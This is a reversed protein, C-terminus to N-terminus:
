TEITKIKSQRIKKNGVIYEIVYAVANEENSRDLVKSAIQKLEQQANNVAIGVNVNKLLSIDNLNDGIGYSYLNKNDLYNILRNVGRGKSTGAPLIELYNSESFVTTYDYSNSLIEKEIELLNTDKGYISEKEVMLLIKSIPTDIFSDLSGLKCNIREKQEFKEIIANKNLTFPQNDKYIVLGYEHQADLIIKWTEPLVSMTDEYIVKKQVPCYLRAGNYSIIPLTINLQEIYQQTTEEMRGTAFTFLGGESIFKKIWRHNLESIEHEKNLLTGDLDSIILKNKLYEGRRFSKFYTELFACSRLMVVNLFVSLWIAIFISIRSM